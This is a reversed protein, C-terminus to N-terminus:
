NAYLVEFSDTRSSQQGWRVMYYCKGHSPLYYGIRDAHWTHSGTKCPYIRTDSQRIVNPSAQVSIPTYGSQNFKEHSDWRYHSGSTHLVAFYGNPSYYSNGNYTYQCYGQNNADIGSVGILGDQGNFCIYAGNSGGAHFASGFFNSDWPSYGVWEGITQAEATQTMGALLAAGFLLSKNWKM